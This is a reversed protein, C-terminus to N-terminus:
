KSFDVVNHYDADSIIGDAVAQQYAKNYTENLGAIMEDLTLDGRIYRGLATQYNDGELSIVADPYTPMPAYESIESMVDWNKKDVLELNEKAWEVTEPVTPICYGEAYMKARTEKSMLFNFVESVAWLRDETVASTIAYGTDTFGIFKNEPNDTFQPPDVIVWECTAPFQDVYVGIDYAPAGLMGVRGEAFQARIGDISITEYGPFISGDEFMQKSAEFIPAFPAFDYEGKNNNFWGTGTSAMSAKLLLRRVYQPSWSDTWGFGFIEGNGNETIIRAAEVMEDLTKPAKANGNEDVIGNAVFLDANIVFKIPSIDCPFTYTKGDVVNQGQVLYPEYYAYLDKIYENDDLSAIFGNKINAMSASCIIDPSNGAAMMMDRAEVYNDVNTDMQIYIGKEAGITDNWQSIEEELFAKMHGAGNFFYVIEKEKKEPAPTIEESATLENEKEEPSEPAETETAKGCGAFMGLVLLLALLLAVIKKM